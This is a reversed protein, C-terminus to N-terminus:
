DRDKTTFTFDRAKTILAFARTRMTLTFDRAQTTLTIIATVGAGSTFETALAAASSLVGALSRLTKKVITGASILTGALPKNVQKVLTGASSLTGALSVLATKTAAIVGASTLTGAFSKATQKVLAGASSLAGALPKNTQKVLAGASTLTGALSLLATKTASIAGASTLTGAFSKATQKIVVGTSTLTGAYTAATQKVLVAASTLTGALPLLATKTLTGASTLTGTFAQASRKVVDGASTLTGAYSVSAQKSIVGASSLTGAYSVRSGKVLVGASSLAGAIDQTYQTGGAPVFMAFPEPLQCLDWPNRRVEQVERYTLFRDYIRVDSIDGQWRRSGGDVSYGLRIVTSSSFSNTGTPIASNEQEANDVILYRANQNAWRIAFLHWDGDAFNGSISDSTFVNFALDFDFSTPTSPGGCDLEVYNTGDALSFIKSDQADNGTARGFMVITVPVNGGIYSFDGTYTHNNNEYNYHHGRLSWSHDPRAAEPSLSFNRGYNMANHQMPFWDVLGRAQPSYPNIRIPFRGSLFPSRKTM